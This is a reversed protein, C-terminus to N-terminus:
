KTILYLERNLDSLERALRFKRDMLKISCRQKEAKEMLIKEKSALESIKDLFSESTRKEVSKNKELLEGAEIRIKCVEGLHNSFIINKLEAIEKMIEEIAKVIIKEKTTM